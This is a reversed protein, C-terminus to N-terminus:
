LLRHLEARGVLAHLDGRLHHPHALDLQVRRAGSTPGPGLRPPLPFGPAPSCWRPGRPGLTCFTLRAPGTGTPMTPSAPLQTFVGCYRRRPNTPGVLRSPVMIMDSLSPPSHHGVETIHQPRCRAKLLKNGVGHKNAPRCCDQILPDTRFRNPRRCVRWCRHNKRHPFDSRSRQRTVPRGGARVVRGLPNAFLLGVQGTCPVRRSIATM